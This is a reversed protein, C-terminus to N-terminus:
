KLSKVPFLTYIINPAFSSIRQVVPVLILPCLLGALFGGTIHWAIDEVGLKLLFVRFGAEAIIHSLFIIMSNIGLFLIFRHLPIFKQDREIKIAIYACVNYIAFVSLASIVYYLFNLKTDTILYFSIAGFFLLLSCLGGRAGQFHVYRSFIGMVFYPFFFISPGIIPIEISKFSIFPFKMIDSVGLLSVIFVSIAGLIILAHKQTQLILGSFCLIVFLAWLFWFQQKPPFPAILVDLFTVSSNINNSAIYQIGTQLYSWFLLPIILKIMNHKLFTTFSYRTATKQIFMGSLFFFIPMHFLYISKDVEEWIGGAPLIDSSTLGRITHGFVVLAIAIAKTYDPGTERTLM